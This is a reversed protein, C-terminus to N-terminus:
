RYPAHCVIVFPRLRKETSIYEIFYDGYLLQPLEFAVTMMDIKPTWGSSM